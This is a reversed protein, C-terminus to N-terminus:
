PLKVRLEAALNQMAERGTRGFVRVRASRKTKRGAAVWQNLRGYRHTDWSFLQADLCYALVRAPVVHRTDFVGKSTECREMPWNMHLCGVGNPTCGRQEVRYWKGPYTRM